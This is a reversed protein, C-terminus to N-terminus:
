DQAADSAGSWLGGGVPWDLRGCQRSQGVSPRPGILLSCQRPLSHHCNDHDPACPCDGGV